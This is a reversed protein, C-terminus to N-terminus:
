IDLYLIYYLTTTSYIGHCIFLAIPKIYYAVQITCSYWHFIHTVFSCWNRDSCCSRDIWYNHHNPYHNPILNANAFFNCDWTFLFKISHFLQLLSHWKVTYNQHGRQSDLGIGEGPIMHPMLSSQLKCCCCCGIFLTCNRTSSIPLVLPM